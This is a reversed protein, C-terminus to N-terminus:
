SARVTEMLEKVKLVLEVIEQEINLAIRARILERAYERQVNLEAIKLASQLVPLQPRLLALAADDDRQDRQAAEVGDHVDNLKQQAQPDNKVRAAMVHDSRSSNLKDIVGQSAARRQEVADITRQADAIARKVQAVKKEYDAVAM